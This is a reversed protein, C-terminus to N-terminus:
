QEAAEEGWIGVKNSKATREKREYQRQFQESKRKDFAVSMGYARALGNQILEMALDEGDVEVVAYYRNRKSQGRAKVKKTHVTIKGRSLRSKVYKAAKKGWKLVSKKSTRFWKAQEEVREPFQGEETEPCDVGYLRFIYTYNRESKKSKTKISFSDGDFYRDEVFECDEFTQWETAARVDVLMWVFFLAVVRIM